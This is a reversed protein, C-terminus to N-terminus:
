SRPSRAPMSACSRKCGSRGLRIPKWITASPPRAGYAIVRVSGPPKPEFVDEKNRFGYNNTESNSNYGNRSHIAGLEADHTWLGYTKGPVGYKFHIIAYGVGEIALIGAVPFGM